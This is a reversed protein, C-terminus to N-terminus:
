QFDITVKLVSFALNDSTIVATQYQVMKKEDLDFCYSETPECHGVSTEEDSSLGEPLKCAVSPIPHSQVHFTQHHETIYWFAEQLQQVATAWEWGLM